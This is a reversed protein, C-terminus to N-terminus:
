GGRALRRNRERRKDQRTRKREARMQDAAALWDALPADALGRFRAPWGEDPPFPNDALMEDARQEGFIRALMARFKVELLERDRDTM